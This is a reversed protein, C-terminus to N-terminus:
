RRIDSCGDQHAGARFNWNVTLSVHRAPRESRGQDLRLFAIWNTSDASGDDPTVTAPTLADFIGTFRGHSGDDEVFQVDASGVVRCPHCNVESESGPDGGM